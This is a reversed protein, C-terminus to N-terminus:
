LMLTETQLRMMANKRTTLVMWQRATCSLPRHLKGPGTGSPDPQALRAAYAYRRDRQENGWYCTDGTNGWRYWYTDQAVTPTQVRRAQVPEVWRRRWSQHRHERGIPTRGRRHRTRFPLQYHERAGKRCIQSAFWRSPLPRCLTSFDPVSWYTGAPEWCLWDDAELPLGVLVKFTLCAQFANASYTKHRRRWSSAEVEWVM